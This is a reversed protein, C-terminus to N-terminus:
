IEGRMALEARTFHGKASNCSKCSVVVNSKSSAGGRVIPILHDMTLSERSFSEECHYCVGKGLQQRWWQTGRLDKAKARERRVHQADVPTFYYDMCGLTIAYKVFVPSNRALFVWITSIAM